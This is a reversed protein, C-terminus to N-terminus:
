FNTDTQCHLPTSHSITDLCILNDRFTMVLSAEVLQNRAQGLDATRSDASLLTWSSALYTAKLKILQRKLM